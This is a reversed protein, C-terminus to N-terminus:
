QAYLSHTSMPKECEMTAQQFQAATSM